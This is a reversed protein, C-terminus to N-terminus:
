KPPRRAEGSGSRPDRRWCVDWEDVMSRLGALAYGREILPLRENFSPSLENIRQEDPTDCDLDLLERVRQEVDPLL